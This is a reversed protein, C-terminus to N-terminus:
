LVRIEYRNDEKIDYYNIATIVTDGDRSVPQIEVKEGFVDEYKVVFIKRREDIIHQEYNKKM